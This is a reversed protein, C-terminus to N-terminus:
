PRSRPWRSGLRSPRPSRGGGGCPPRPAGAAPPRPARRSRSRRAGPPTDGTAARAPARARRPRRRRRGGARRGPSAGRRRRPRDNWAPRPAPRGPRVQRGGAAPGRGRSGRLARRTERRPHRGQPPLARLKQARPEVPERESFGPVPRRPPEATPTPQAPGAAVVTFRERLEKGQGSVDDRFQLALEYGGPALVSLQLGLVGGLAGSPGPALPQGEGRAVEQDGRRLTYSLLVRPANTVEDPAAGYVEVSCYLVGSGPFDRRAVLTPQPQGGSGPEAVDTLVPTAVRWADLDPVDFDHVVSGVAGGRPDRVVLRAQYRGPELDLTKRYPYYRAREFTEPRLHLNITESSSAPEGGELRRVRLLTELAAVHRGDRREFGVDGLEVDAVFEVRARGGPRREFVGASARLRVGDVELPAELARRMEEPMEDAQAARAVQVSPYYGKRARVKVDERGVRVAIKRFGGDRAANSPTYGLLYYARSEEAIRGMGTALDNRNRVSFGGTDAAVDVAGEAEAWDDSLQMSLAPQVVDTTGWADPNEHHAQLLQENGTALGRVDVFYVAANGRRSAAVVSRTEELEPDFVFGTSVLIVTKRGRAVAMGEMVRTLTGLTARIRNAEPEYVERARLAVTPDCHVSFQLEDIGPKVMAGDAIFRRLVRRCIDVDQHRVIRIAEYDTMREPAPGEPLRRGELTGLLALLSERGAEMRASWWAEGSTAALLVRDGERLSRTLFAAVVERARPTLAPPIHIDDFIVAFSRATRTDASANSSIAPQAPAAGAPEAPLEVAEFSTVAQPRGDETVLFDDKTLGVVPTGDEATVVVDVTVLEVEAQFAPAAEQSRQEEGASRSVCLCLLTAITASFRKGSTRRAMTM